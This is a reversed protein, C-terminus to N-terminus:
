NEEREGGQKKKKTTKKKGKKSMKMGNARRTAVRLWISFFTTSYNRNSYHYNICVPHSMCLVVNMQIRSECAAELYQAHFAVVATKFPRM